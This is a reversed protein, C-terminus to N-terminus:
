VKIIVGLGHRLRFWKFGPTPRVGPRVGQDAASAGTPRSAKELQQCSNTSFWERVATAGILAGLTLSPNGAAGRRRTM